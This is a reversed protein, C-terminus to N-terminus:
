WRRRRGSLLSRSSEAILLTKWYHELFVFELLKYEFKLVLRVEVQGSRGETADEGGM